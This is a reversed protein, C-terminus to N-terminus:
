FVPEEKEETSSGVAQYEPKLEYLGNYMGKKVLVAVDALVEKLWAHPQSTKDVLDTFKWYQNENFSTILIRILDARDMRERKDLQNTKGTIAGMANATPKILSDKVIGGMTARVRMRKKAEDAGMQMINKRKKVEDEQRKKALMRYDNDLVPIVTAEHAVSASFAQVTDQADNTTFVYAGKSAANTMNLNFNKPLADAWHDSIHPLPNHPLHLTIQPPRASAGKAGKAAAHYVRLTGLEVGPEAGAKDWAEKVFKPIKVLWAQTAVTSTDIPTTSNATQQKVIAEPTAAVYTSNADYGNQNAPEDM